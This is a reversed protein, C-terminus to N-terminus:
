TQVGVVADVLFEKRRELKTCLVGDKYTMECVTETIKHVKGVLIKTLEGETMPQGPAGAEVHHLKTLRHPANKGGARLFVVEYQRDRSEEWIKEGERYISRSSEEGVNVRQNQLLDPVPLEGVPENVTVRRIQPELIDDPEPVQNDPESDSTGSGPDPPGMMALMGRPKGRAPPALPGPVSEVEQRTGPSVTVEIEACPTPTEPVSVSSKVQKAVPSRSRHRRGTEDNRSHVERSHNDRGATPSDGRHGRHLRRYHALLNDRRSFLKGCQKCEHSRRSRHESEIHRTLSRHHSFYRHCTYCKYLGKEPSRSM